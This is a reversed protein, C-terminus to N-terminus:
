RLVIKRVESLDGVRFHIFYIGTELGELDITENFTTNSGYTFLRVQEGTISRVEVHASVPEPFEAYFTNNDITLGGVVGKTSYTNNYIDADSYCYYGDDYIWLTRVYPQTPRTNGYYLFPVDINDKDTTWSVNNIGKADGDGFVFLYKLLNFDTPIGTAVYINSTGNGKLVIVPKQPRKYVTVEDFEITGSEWVKDDPSVNKYKLVYRRNEKTQKLSKTDNLAYQIENESKHKDDVDMLEDDEYWEFEWGFPNGYRYGIVEYTYNDGERAQVPEGGTKHPVEAKKFEMWAFKLSDYVLPRAGDRQYIGKLNYCITKPEGPGKQATYTYSGLKIQDTEIDDKKDLDAWTYDWGVSSPGTYQPSLTIVDDEYVYQSIKDPNYKEPVIMSARPWIKLNRDIITDRLYVGEGILCKVVIRFSISDGNVPDKIVQTSLDNYSRVDIGQSLELTDEELSSKYTWQADFTYDHSLTVSLTDGSYLATYGNDNDDIGAVSVSIDLIEPYVKVNYSVPDGSYWDLGDPGWVHIDATYNNIIYSKEKNVANINVTDTGVSNNFADKWDVSWYSDELGGLRHLQMNPIKDPAQVLLYKSNGSVYYDTNDEIYQIPWTKIAYVDYRRIPKNIFSKGQNSPVTPAVVTELRYFVTDTLYNDCDKLMFEVFDLGTDVGTWGNGSLKYWSYSRIIEDNGDDKVKYVIKIKDDYKSCVDITDGTIFVLSDSDLSLWEESIYDMEPVKWVEFYRSFNDNYWLTKGDPAYCYVNVNITDLWRNSGNSSFSYSLEQISEDSKNWEYRWVGDIQSPETKNIGSKIISDTWVVYCTEKDWLPASTPLDSVKVIPAQTFNINHTESGTDELEGKILLSYCGALGYKNSSFLVSNDNIDYPQQDIAAGQDDLLSITLSKISMSPALDIFYKVDCGELINWTNNGKDFSGAYNYRPDAIGPPIFMLTDRVSLLPRVRLDFTITDVYKKDTYGDSLQNSVIVSYKVMIYDNTTNEAKDSYSQVSSVKKNEKYWSFNWNNNDSGISETHGVNMNLTQGDYLDSSNYNLTAKPEPWFIVNTWIHKEYIMSDPMNEKKNIFHLFYSVTDRESGQINEKNSEPMCSHSSSVIDTGNKYWWCEDDNDYEEIVLEKEYNLYTKFESVLNPDPRKYSTITVSESQSFWEVGNPDCNKAVISETYSGEATYLFGLTWDPSKLLEGPYIGRVTNTLSNDYENPTIESWYYLGWGKNYGGITDVSLNLARGNWIDIRGVNRWLDNKLEISPKPLIEVTLTKEFRYPKESDILGEPAYEAVFRYNVDVKDVIHANLSDLRMLIDDIGDFSSPPTFSPNSSILNDNEDYWEYKWYGSWTNNTQAQYNREGYKYYDYDPYIYLFGDETKQNGANSYVKIADDSDPYRWVSYQRDYIFSYWIDGNPDKNTIDVTCEYYASNVGSSNSLQGIEVTCAGNNTTFTQNNGSKILKTEWYEDESGYYDFKIENITNNWVVYEPEGGDLNVAYPEPRTIVPVTKGQLSKETMETSPRYSAEVSYIVTGYDSEAPPIYVMSPNGYVNIGNRKWRIIWKDQILGVKVTLAREGYTKSNYGDFIYLSKGSQKIGNLSYYFDFDSEIPSKWVTYNMDKTDGKSWVTKNDPALYEYHGKVSYNQSYNNDRTTLVKQWSNLTEESQTQGDIIWSYKITCHSDIGTMYFGLKNERDDWVNMSSVNTWDESYSINGTNPLSCVIVTNDGSLSVSEESENLIGTVSLIYSGIYKADSANVTVNFTGDKIEDSSLGKEVITIDNYVVSYSFSSFSSVPDVAVSYIFSSGAYTYHINGVKIGNNGSSGNDSSSSISKVSITQAYLINTNLLVILGLLFYLCRNKM